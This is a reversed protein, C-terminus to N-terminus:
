DQRKRSLIQHQAQPLSATTRVRRRGILGCILNLVYRHGVQLVNIKSVGGKRRYEHSPMEIVRYGQKLCKMAMEQEITTIDSTLGITRGVETRIARFGNQYDTLRVGYRYNISLSITLSGMLRIVESFSGFLEESGGLMRSAIVLDADGAAIPAVLAPIDNPEHSGDADIFVTIPHEANALGVRVADGKGRGNDEIVRAGYRHAIGVTNDSSRGDVVILDDTMYQVAHLVDRITNEENRAPVVISYAPLAQDNVIRNRAVPRDDSSSEIRPSLTSM